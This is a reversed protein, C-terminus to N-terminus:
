RVREPHSYINLRNERAFGILTINLDEALDIALDTPAGKSLMLPINARAAKIVIESSVRGSLLLCTDATEMGQLCLAGLVKDVANHRGIDEAMLLIRDNALAASHVGGTLRFSRANKELWSMHRLLLNKTFCGSAKVEKVQRADNIFYLGARGKGCCSAINRRLFSNTNSPEPYIRIHLLGESEQCELEVINKSNQILGESLLFGVGLEKLDNPSCVMTVIERENVFLTLPFERVILDKVVERKGCDHKCVTRYLYNESM